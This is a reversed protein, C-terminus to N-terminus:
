SRQLLSISLFGFFQYFNIFIALVSLSIGWLRQVVLPIEIFNEPFIHRIIINFTVFFWPKVTEKSSVNKSFGCPHDFQVERGGGGGLRKLTLKLLSTLLQETPTSHKNINLSELEAVMWRQVKTRRWQLYVQMWALCM